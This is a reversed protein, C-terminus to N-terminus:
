GFGFAKGIGGIVNSINKVTGKIGKGVDDIMEKTGKVPDDFFKPKWAKIGQIRLGVLAGIGAGVIQSAGLVPIVSAM